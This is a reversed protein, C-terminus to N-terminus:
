VRVQQPTESSAAARRGASPPGRIPGSADVVVAASHHSPQRRMAGSPGMSSGRQRDGGKAAVALGKAKQAVGLDGSPLLTSTQSPTGTTAERGRVASGRPVSSRRSATTASTGSPSPTFSPSSDAPRASGGGGASPPRRGSVQAISPPSVRRAPAPPTEWAAGFSASVDSSGGGPPDWVGDGMASAGTAVEPPDWHSHGGKRPPIGRSAQGGSARIAEVGGRGGGSWPSPEGRGEAVWERRGGVPVDENGFAGPTSAPCHQAPFDPSDWEPGKEPGGDDNAYASQQAPPLVGQWPRRRELDARKDAEAKKKAAAAARRAELAAREAQEAAAAEFDVDTAWPPKSGGGGPQRSSSGGGPSPTTHIVPSHHTRGLARSDTM